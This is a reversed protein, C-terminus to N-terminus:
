QAVVIGILNRDPSGQGRAKIQEIHEHLADRFKMLLSEVEASDTASM